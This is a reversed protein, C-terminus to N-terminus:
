SYRMVRVTWVGAQILEETFDKANCNNFFLIRESEDSNLCSLVIPSSSLCIEVISNIGGINWSTGNRSDTVLFVGGRAQIKLEADVEV